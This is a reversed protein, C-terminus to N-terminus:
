GLLGMKRLRERAPVPELTALLADVEDDERKMRTDMEVKNDFYYSLAAHVQALNLENYHQVCIEEPSYGNHFTDIVIESVRYSTGLVFPRGKADLAIHKNEVAVM